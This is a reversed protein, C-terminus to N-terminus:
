SVLNGLKEIAQVALRGNNTKRARGLMGLAERIEEIQSVKARRANEHESGLFDGCCACRGRQGTEETTM